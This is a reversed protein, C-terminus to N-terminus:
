RFWGIWKHLSHFFRDGFRWGLLGCVIVSLTVVCVLAVTSDAWYSVTGVITGLGVLLGVGAGCGIRVFTEQSEPTSMYAADLAL